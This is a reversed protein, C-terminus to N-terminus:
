DGSFSVSLRFAIRLDKRVAIPVIKQVEFAFNGISSPLKRIYHVLYDDLLHALNQREHLM